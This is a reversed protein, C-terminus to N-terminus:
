PDEVCRVMSVESDERTGAAWILLKQHPSIQYELFAGFQSARLTTPPRGVLRVVDGYTIGQTIKDYPAPIIPQTDPHLVPLRPVGTSGYGIVRISGYDAPELVNISLIMDTSYIRRKEPPPFGVWDAYPLDMWRERIDAVTETPYSDAAGTSDYFTIKVTANKGSGNFELMYGGFDVHPGNRLHFIHLGRERLDVWPFYFRFDREGEYGILPLCSRVTVDGRHSWTCCGSLLAAFAASAIARCIFQIGAVRGLHAM